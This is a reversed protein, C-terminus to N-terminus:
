NGVVFTLLCLIQVATSMDLSTRLARTSFNDWLKDWFKDWIQVLNDTSIRGQDRPEGGGEHHGEARVGKVGHGM